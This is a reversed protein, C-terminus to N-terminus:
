RETGCGVDLAVAASPPQIESLYTNLMARQQPNAARLELVGALRAQLAEDAQAVSAYPDPLNIPIHGSPLSMRTLICRKPAEPAYM